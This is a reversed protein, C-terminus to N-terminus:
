IYLVEATYRESTLTVNKKQKTKKNKTKKPNKKTKKKKPKKQLSCYNLFGVIIHWITWDSTMINQLSSPSNVHCKTILRWNAKVNITHWTYVRAKQLLKDHQAASQNDYVQSKATLRWDAKDNIQELRLGLKKHFSISPYLLTSFFFFLFFFM